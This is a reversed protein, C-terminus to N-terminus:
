IFGLSLLLSLFSIALIWYIGLLREIVFGSVLLLLGVVIVVVFVVVVVGVTFVGLFCCVFFFGDWGM